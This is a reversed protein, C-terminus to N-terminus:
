AGAAPLAGAVYIRDVSMTKTAGSSTSLGFVPSLYIGTPINATITQLLAGDWFFLLKSVGDWVIKAKHWGTTTSATVTAGAAAPTTTGGASKVQYQVTGSSIRFGFGVPQTDEPNTTTAGVADAAYLGFHQAVTTITDCRLRIEAVIPQGVACLWSTGNLQAYMDDGSTGTVVFQIAGRVNDAPAAEVTFFTTASTLAANTGGVQWEASHETLSFKHLGGNLFDDFFVAPTQFNDPTDLGGYLGAFPFSSPFSM